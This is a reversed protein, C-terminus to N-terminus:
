ILLEFAVMTCKEYIKGRIAENQPMELCWRHFNIEFFKLYIGLDRFNIGYFKCTKSWDVAFIHEAFIEALM